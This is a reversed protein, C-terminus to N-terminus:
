YWHPQTFEEWHALVSARNEFVCAPEPRFGSNRILEELCRSTAAFWNSKDDNLEGDPYFQLICEKRLREDVEDLALTERGLQLSNDIVHTELMMQGRCVSHVKDLALLIHRLHYFVGFFMVFDFTGHVEPDLDYVSSVAYEVNSGLLEHATAFGLYDAPHRDTALVRKAGRREAEFSFFGDYAGIDLVTKGTLDEPFGMENLILAPDYRGPTFISPAVEIRHYWERQEIKKRIEVENM